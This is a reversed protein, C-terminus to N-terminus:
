DPARHVNLYKLELLELLGRSRRAWVLANMGRWMDFRAAPKELLMGSVRRHTSKTHLRTANPTFAGYITSSSAPPAPGELGSKPPTPHGVGGERLGCGNTSPSTPRKRERKTHVCLLRLLLLTTGERQSTPPM